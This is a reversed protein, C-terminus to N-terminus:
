DGGVLLVRVAMMAAAGTSVTSDMLIVHDESIDKPLRLYHLQRPRPLLLLLGTAMTVSAPLPCNGCLCMNRPPSFLPSSSFFFNEKKRSCLIQQSEGGTRRFGRQDPDPDQRHPRRQVRGEPRAGDDRRRPPGVRRHDTSVLLLRLGPPHASSFRRFVGGDSM